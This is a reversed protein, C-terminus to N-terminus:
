KLTLKEPYQELAARARLCEAVDFLGFHCEAAPIRMTEALWAYAAGRNEFRKRPGPKYLPIFLSKTAKRADRTEHDALTGLPISTFPHMGVYAVCASCHYVWLWDGHARGYLQEHHLITVDGGCYRCTTPAPLPDPVRASATKSPRWPTKETTTPM